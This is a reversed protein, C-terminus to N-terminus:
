TWDKGPRDAASRLTKIILTQYGVGIKAAETKYFAILKDPIRITIRQSGRRPMQCPCAPSSKDRGRPGDLLPEPMLDVTLNLEEVPLKAAEFLADSTISSPLALKDIQESPLTIKKHM